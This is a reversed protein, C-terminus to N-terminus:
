TTAEALRLGLADLGRSAHQKVSGRSISLEEAIDAESLDYFYRLALVERQRRPLGRLGEVVRRRDDQRVAVHEASPEDPQRDLRLARLTSRRRLQNRARNAVSARVYSVAAEPESLRDWHTALGAFAEQVVDEATQVDDVLLRAYAVLRAYHVRFLAAVAEDRGKPLGVSAAERRDM